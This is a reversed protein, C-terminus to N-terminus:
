STNSIYNYWRGNVNGWKLKVNTSIWAYMKVRIFIYVNTLSLNAALLLSHVLQSFIAEM